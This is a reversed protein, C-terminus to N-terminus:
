SVNWICCFRETWSLFISESKRPHWVDQELARLTSGDM